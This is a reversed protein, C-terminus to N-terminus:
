VNITTTDERNKEIANFKENQECTTDGIFKELSEIKAEMKSVRHEFHHITDDKEAIISELKNFQDDVIHKRVLEDEHKQLIELEKEINVHKEFNIFKRWEGFKCFGYEKFFKCFKPQKLQCVKM